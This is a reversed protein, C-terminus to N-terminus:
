DSIRVAQGCEYCYKQGRYVPSHCTPCEYEWDDGVHVADVPDDRHAKGDAYGKDYQGRDHALARLLEGKDVHIGVNQVAKCIEGEMQLQMQSHIIQIPSEYSM